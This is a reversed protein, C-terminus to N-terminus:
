RWVSAAGRWRACGQALAPQDAAPSRALAENQSGDRDEERAELVPTAIETGALMSGDHDNGLVALLGARDHAEDAAQQMARWHQPPGDHVFRRLAEGQPVAHLDLHM